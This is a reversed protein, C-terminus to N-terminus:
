EQVETHRSCYETEIDEIEHGYRECWPLIGRQYRHQCTECPPHPAPKITPQANLTRHVADFEDCPINDAAWAYAADADILRAM